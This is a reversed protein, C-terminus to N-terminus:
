QRIIEIIHLERKGQLHSPKTQKEEVFENISFAYMVKMVNKCETQSSHQCIDMIM